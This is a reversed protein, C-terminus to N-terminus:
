AASARAPRAGTLVLEAGEHDLHEPRLAGFRKGEFRAQLADPFISPEGFPAPDDPDGGYRVTAERAWKVIPNFVLVVVSGERGIELDRDGAEDSALTWDLHTHDDHGVLAYRGSAVVYAGPQYRRGRTKTDYTKPGLGDMLSGGVREVFAWERDRRGVGPMRRKGIAIRRGEGHEPRLLLALKQVGRAHPAPAADAPEVRPRAVFTIRGTEFTEFALSALKLAGRTTALALPHTLPANAAYIVVNRRPGLRSLSWFLAMDGVVIGLLGSLALTLAAGTDLTQWGGMMTTAALLAAAVITLRVRNFAISGLVRVPGIAILGGAAWCLAAGLAAMNAIM